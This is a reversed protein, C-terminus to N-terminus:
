HPRPSYRRGTPDRVITRMLPHRWTQPKQLDELTIGDLFARVKALHKEGRDIEIREALLLEQLGMLANVSPYQSKFDAHIVEYIGKRIRVESRGGYYTQMHLGIIEAPFSSHQEMFHPVGFEQYYGKGLSAESYIEWPGKSLDM